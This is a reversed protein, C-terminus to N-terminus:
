GGDDCKLFWAELFMIKSLCIAVPTYGSFCNCDWTVSSNNVEEKKM